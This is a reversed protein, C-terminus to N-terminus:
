ITKVASIDFIVGWVASTKDTADSYQAVRVNSISVKYPINEALMLTKIVSAWSGRASVKANVYGNTALGGKVPPVNDIATVTVESGVSTGLSELTEIFPVVNDTQVFVMNLKKWDDSSDTDLKKLKESMDNKTQLSAVKGRTEVVALTMNGLSYSMYFYLSMVFLTVVIALTILFHHHTHKM